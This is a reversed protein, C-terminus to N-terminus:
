SLRKSFGWQFFVPFAKAWTNVDHKGDTMQYYIMQEGEKYGKALLERMLDITDDISDIVGNNNRDETEDQEGTQFFFRKGAIYKGNRIQAHMIRDVLPNFSKDHHDKSRWWLAASFIAAMDFTEPYNWVMDIASLGGLSFGAFSISEIQKEHYRITIFPILEKLIFEHYAAAKSGRGKFDPGIATGYEQIRDEGCHIAAVIIPVLSYEQESQLLIHQFNMKELDQGDNVLLLKVKDYYGASLTTYFDIRVNRNLPISILESHEKLFEINNEILM